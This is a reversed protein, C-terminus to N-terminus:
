MLSVFVDPVGSANKAPTEESGEPFGASKDAACQTFFEQSGCGAGEQTTERWKKASRIM